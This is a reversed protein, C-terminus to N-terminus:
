NPLGHSGIRKTMRVILGHASSLLAVDDMIQNILYLGRGGESELDPVHSMTLHSLAFEIGEDEVEFVMENREPMIGCRLTFSNDIGGPSGHEVANACAEGIALEILDVSDAAYKSAFERIAVRAYHVNSPHSNWRREVAFCNKQLMTAAEFM